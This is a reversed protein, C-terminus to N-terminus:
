IGWCSRINSVGFDLGGGPILNGLDDYRVVYYGYQTGGPHGSTTYAPPYLGGYGSSSVYAKRVLGSSYDFEITGGYPASCISWSAATLVLKPRTTTTTAVVVDHITTTTM